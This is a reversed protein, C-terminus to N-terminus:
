NITTPVLQKKNEYKEMLLKKMKSIEISAKIMGRLKPNALTIPSQKENNEKQIIEILQQTSSQTSIRDLLFLAIKEHSCKCAIHVPLNNNEDCVLLLSPNQQIFLKVQEFDNRRISDFIFMSSLSTQESSASSQSTNNTISPQSSNPSSM